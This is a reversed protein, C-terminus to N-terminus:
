MYKGEGMAHTYSVRHVRLVRLRSVERGELAATDANNDFGMAVLQAAAAAHPVSEDLAAETDM